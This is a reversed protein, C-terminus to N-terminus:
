FYILIKCCISELPLMMLQNSVEIEADEKIPVSCLGDRGAFTLCDEAAVLNGPRESISSGAEWGGAM